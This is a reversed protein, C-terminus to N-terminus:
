VLVGRRLLWRPYTVDLDTVPSHSRMIWLKRISRTKGRACAELAPAPSSTEM